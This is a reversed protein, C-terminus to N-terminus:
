YRAVTRGGKARRIEVRVIRCNVDGRLAEAQELTVDTVNLWGGAHHTLEGSRSVYAWARLPRVRKMPPLPIVRTRAPVRVVQMKQKM